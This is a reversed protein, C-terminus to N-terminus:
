KAEAFYVGYKLEVFTVLYDGLRDNVKVESGAVVRYKSAQVKFVDNIVGDALLSLAITGLPDEGNERDLNSVLDKIVTPRKWELDHTVLIMRMFRFLLEGAMETAAHGLIYRDNDYVIVDGPNVTAQKGVRIVYDNISAKDRLLSAEIVLGKFRRGGTTKFTGQFRAGASDLRM